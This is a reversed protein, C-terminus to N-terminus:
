LYESVRHVKLQWHLLTNGTYRVHGEMYVCFNLLSKNRYFFLYQITFEYICHVIIVTIVLPILVDNVMNVAHHMHHCNLM